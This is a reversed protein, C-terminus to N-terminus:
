RREAGAGGGGARATGTGLLADKQRFACILVTGIVVVGLATVDADESGGSQRMGTVAGVLNAFRVSAVGLELRCRAVFCGLAMSYGNQQLSKSAALMLDSRASTLDAETRKKGVDKEMIGVSEADWTRWAVLGKSMIAKIGQPTSQNTTHNTATAAAIAYYQQAVRLAM